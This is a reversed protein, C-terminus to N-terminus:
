DTIGLSILHPHHIVCVIEDPHFDSSRVKTPFASEAIAIELPLLLRKKRDGLRIASIESGCAVIVFDQDFGFESSDLATDDFKIISDLSVLRKESFAARNM